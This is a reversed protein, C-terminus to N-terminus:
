TGNEQTSLSNFHFEFGVETVSQCGSSVLNLSSWLSSLCKFSSYFISLYGTLPSQNLFLLSVTCLSFPMLVQPVKIV